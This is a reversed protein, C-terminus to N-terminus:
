SLRYREQIADSGLFPRIERGPQLLVPVSINHQETFRMRVASLMPNPTLAALNFYDLLLSALSALM